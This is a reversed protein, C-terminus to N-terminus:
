ALPQDSKGNRGLFHQLPQTGQRLGETTSTQNSGACRMLTDAVHTAHQRAVWVSVDWEPKM